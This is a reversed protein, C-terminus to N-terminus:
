CPLHIVVQTGEGPATLLSFKGGLEEVRERMNTLGHGHNANVLDFGRGDDRVSLKVEGPGFGLLMDVGSAMAHKFANALAEQTVRYVCTAVAVPREEGETELRTPVGAINNFEGFKTRWWVQSDRRAQWTRNLTSSTTASRM